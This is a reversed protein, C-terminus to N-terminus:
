GTVLSVDLILKTEIGNPLFEEYENLHIELKISSKEKSELTISNKERLFAFSLDSNCVYSPFQSSIKFIINIKLIIYLVRHILYLPFNRTQYENAQKSLPIWDNNYLKTINEINKLEKEINAKVFNPANQEIMIKNRQINYSYIEKSLPDVCIIWKNIDISM